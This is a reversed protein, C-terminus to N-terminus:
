TFGLTTFVISAFLSFTLSMNFGDDDYDHVHFHFIEAGNLMFFITISFQDTEGGKEKM